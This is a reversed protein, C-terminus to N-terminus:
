YVLVEECDTMFFQMLTSPATVDLEKALRLENLSHDKTSVCAFWRFSLFITLRFYFLLINKIEFRCIEM